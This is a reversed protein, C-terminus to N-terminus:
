NVGNAADVLPNGSSSTRSNSKYAKALKGDADFRVITTENINAGFHPIETYPYSWIEEGRSESIEPALGIIQEVETPSMGSKLQALQDESVKVGNTYPQFMGGAVSGVTTSVGQRVSGTTDAVKSTANKFGEGAGGQTACGSVFIVAMFALTLSRVFKLKKMAFGRPKFPHGDLMAVFRYIPIM